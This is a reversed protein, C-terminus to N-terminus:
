TGASPMKTKGRPPRGFSPYFKTLNRWLPSGSTIIDTNVCQAIWTFAEGSNRALTYPNVCLVAFLPGTLIWYIRNPIEDVRLGFLFNVFLIVQKWKHDKIKWTPFKYTPWKHASEAWGKSRLPPLSSGGVEAQHCNRVGILSIMPIYLDSRFVNIDFNPVLDHLKM